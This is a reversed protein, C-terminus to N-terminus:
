QQVPRPTSFDVTPATTVKAMDNPQFNQKREYGMIRALIVGPFQRIQLNYEQVALVYRHRAVAIRNETGELQVMLNTFMTDAKLEPYRESIVLLRSLASSLEQQSRQYAQMNQANKPAHQGQSVSGIRARADAIDKFVSEEHSAYGKVTAVLSPILDARRQYQNLVESWQADVAEDSAQIDNYGCGSLFLVSACVTLWQFFRIM